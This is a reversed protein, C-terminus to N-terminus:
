GRGAIMIPFVVRLDGSTGVSVIRTKWVEVMQRTARYAGLDVASIGVFRPFTTYTEVHTKHGTVGYQPTYSTQANVYTQNGYTSLTGTTTSSAIGTQGWVPISRTLTHERPEGIGYQLLIAVQAQEIAVPQLGRSMLVRHVYWSYEQFELDSPPLKEDAPILAYTRYALANPAAFSNVSVSYPAACSWALLGGVFTVAISFRGM